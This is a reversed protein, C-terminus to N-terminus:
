ILPTGIWNPFDYSNVTSNPHPESHKFLKTFTPRLLLQWFIQTKFHSWMYCRALNCCQRSVVNDVFENDVKITQFYANRFHNLLYFLQVAFVSSNFYCWRSMSGHHEKTSRGSIFLMYTTSWGGRFAQLTSFKVKPTEHVKPYLIIKIILNLIIGFM